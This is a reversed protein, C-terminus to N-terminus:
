WNGLERLRVDGRTDMGERLARSTRHVAEPEDDTGAGVAALDEAIAAIAVTGYCTSLSGAAHGEPLGAM